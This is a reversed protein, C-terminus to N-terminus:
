YPRNMNIAQIKKVIIEHFLQSIGVSNPISDSITCPFKADQSDNYLIEVESLETMIDFDETSSIRETICFNHLRM